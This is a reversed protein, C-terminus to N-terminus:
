AGDKIEVSHKRACFFLQFQRAERKRTSRPPLVARTETSMVWPASPRIVEGSEALANIRFGKLSVLRLIYLECINDPKSMKNSKLTIM